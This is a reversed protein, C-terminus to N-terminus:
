ENTEDSDSLTPLIKDIMQRIEEVSIDEQQTKTYITLLIVHEAIRVYDIVRFVGSNGKQAAPNKLRVKYTEYGVGQLKDGPRQDDKLQSILSNVEREVLPYKRALKKVEKEFFTPIGVKTPM